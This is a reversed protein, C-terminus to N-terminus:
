WFNENAGEGSAETMEQLFPHFFSPHEQPFVFLVRVRLDLNKKFPAFQISPPNKKMEAGASFTSKPPYLQMLLMRVAVIVRGGWEARM